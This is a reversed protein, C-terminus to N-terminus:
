GQGINIEKLLGQQELGDFHKTLSGVFDGTIYVGLEMNENMALHTINASTVLVSKGDGLVLKIHMKAMKHAKDQTWTLLRPLEVDLPWLKRLANRNRMDNHLIMTM